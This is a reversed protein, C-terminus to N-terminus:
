YNSVKLRVSQNVKEVMEIRIRRYPDNFPATPTIVHKIVVTDIDTLQFKGIHLRIYVGEQLSSSTGDKNADFGLPMRYELSYFYGKEGLPVRLEQIQDSAVELANLQYDGPGSITQVQAWPLFGLKSKHIASYHYNLFNVGMPSWLDGYRNVSCGGEVLNLVNKPVKVNFPCTLDGSHMLGFGHGVEHTLTTLDFRRSSVFTGQGATGVGSFVYIVQDFNYTGFNANAIKVADSHMLASCGFGLGSASDVTCYSSLPNPMIYWGYYQGTVSARGYSAEQLYANFSKPGNFVVSDAQSTPYPETLYDSFKLFIVAFKNVKTNLGVETTNITLPLSRPSENGEKDVAAVMMEYTQGPVWFQSGNWNVSTSNAFVNGDIYVRYHSLGSGGVNDAAASWKFQFWNTGYDFTKALNQPQSPPITDTCAPMTIQIPQSKYSSYVQNDRAQITYTHSSNPSASGDVWSTAKGDIGTQVIQGDRFLFYETIWRGAILATAPSWSLSTQRCNLASASLLTPTTVANTCPPFYFKIPLSKLSENGAKDVASAQINYSQDQYIFKSVTYSTAPADAADWNQGDVYLRYGIVGSGDSGDTSALWSIKFTTCLAGVRHVLLITQTFYAKL